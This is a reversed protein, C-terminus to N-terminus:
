DSIKLAKAVEALSKGEAILWEGKRLKRVIQVPTHEKGKM